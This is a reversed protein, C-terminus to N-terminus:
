KRDVLIQVDEQKQIVLIAQTYHHGTLASELEGKVKIRHGVAKKLDINNLEVLQIVQISEVPDWLEDKTKTCVSVPHDLKIMRVQVEPSTGGDYEFNPPGYETKVIVLGTLENEGFYLKEIKGCQATAMSLIILIFIPALYIRKISNDEM